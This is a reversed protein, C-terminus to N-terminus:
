DDDAGEVHCAVQQGGGVPLLAPRVQHCEPVAVPCREQFACGTPLDAPDPLSGAIPQDRRAHSVSPATQLLGRTYPHRPRVLVQEVTGAEVVSGAYMVVVRDAIEAAVGVDHTIFLLGMGEERVLGLLLDLIGAQVTVDLATTPEDAILVQPHLALAMAIVIRQRMGGSLQHPYARFRRDPDPIAVKRMLQITEQRARRTSLKGHVQFMEAIQAGVTHVPNLASLSDQFVMSIRRGRAAEIARGPPLLETGDLTISGSAIHANPELLGMTARATVSKGSGSEGLVVVCEGPAVDLEVNSAAHVVSGSPTRFQVSLDRISVGRGRPKPAHLDM